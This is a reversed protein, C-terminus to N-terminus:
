KRRKKLDRKLRSMFATREQGIPSEAGALLLARLHARAQEKRVL